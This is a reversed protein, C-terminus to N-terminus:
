SRSSTDGCKSADVLDGFGQLNITPKAQCVLSSTGVFVRRILSNPDDAQASPVINFVNRIGSFETNLITPAVGDIVGLVALGRRDPASGWMQAQYVAASYPM